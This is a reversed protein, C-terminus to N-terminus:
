RSDRSGSWRLFAVATAGGALQGLLCGPVDAPRLGAFSNTLGRAVTVAPNAFSTSSTFWYAAGIYSGAAAAVAVADGRSAGRLVLILGLTAVFEAFVQPLGSRAHHSVALLREGFMAHAAAVGALAGALQALVHGPVDRWRVTRQLAEALTVVPNMHVGAAPGFALLLATLGAATALSNVLLTFAANGHSLRDGMIGSGVVIALLFATALGEAAYRRFREPAAVAGRSAREPDIAFLTRM